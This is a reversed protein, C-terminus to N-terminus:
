TRDEPTAAPQTRAALPPTPVGLIAAKSDEAVTTGHFGAPGDQETGAAPEPTAASDSRSRRWMSRGRLVHRPGSRTTASTGGDPAGGAPDEKSRTKAAVFNRTALVGDSALDWGRERLQKAEPSRARETAMRRLNALQRRGEPQGAYYGIGAAVAYRFVGM